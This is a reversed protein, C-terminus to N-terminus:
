FKGYRIFNETDNLIKNVKKNQKAGFVGGLGILYAM